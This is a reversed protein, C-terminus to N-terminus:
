FTFIHISYTDNNTGGDKNFRPQIKKSFREVCENILREERSSYSELLNSNKSLEVTIYGDMEVM